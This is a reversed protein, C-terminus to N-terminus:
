VSKGMEAPQQEDCGSLAAGFRVIGAWNNADIRGRLARELRNKSLRRVWCDRISCLYAGRGSKKGSEDIEVLGSASCYVLRILQLKPKAKHCAICTRQPVHKLGQQAM